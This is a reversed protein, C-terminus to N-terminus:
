DEKENIKCQHLEVVTYLSVVTGAYRWYGEQRGAKRTLMDLLNELTLEPRDEWVSPLYTARSGDPLELYLGFMSESTLGLQLVEPATYHKWQSEPQLIKVDVDVNWVDQSSIVSQWREEADAPIGSAASIVNLPLEAGREYEGISGIIEGQKNKAGIFVGNDRQWWPSWRPLQPTQINLVTSAITSRALAVIHHRDYNWIAERKKTPTTPSPSRVPTTPTSTSGTWVITVYSTAAPGDVSLWGNRKSGNSDSYCVVHGSNSMGTERIAKTLVKLELGARTNVYTDENMGNVSSEVKDYDGQMLGTILDNELSVVRDPNRKSESLNCAWILVRNRGGKWWNVLPVVVQGVNSRPDLQAYSCRHGLERIIEAPVKLSTQNRHTTERRLQTQFQIQDTNVGILVIELPEGEHHYKGHEDIVSGPLHMIGITMGILAEIDTGAPILIIRGTETNDNPGYCMGATLIATQLDGTMM